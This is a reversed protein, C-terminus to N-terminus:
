AANTEVAHGRNTTRGAATATPLLWTRVARKGPKQRHATHFSPRISAILGFALLGSQLRPFIIGDDRAVLPFGMTPM